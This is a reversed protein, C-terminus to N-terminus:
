VAQAAGNKTPDLASFAEAATGNTGPENLGTHDASAENNRVDAEADGPNPSPADDPLGPTREDHLLGPSREDDELGASPAEDRLGPGAGTMHAWTTITPAVSPYEPLWEHLVDWGMLEAIRYRAVEQPWNGSLQFAMLR